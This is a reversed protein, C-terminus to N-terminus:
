PDQLGVPVANISPLSAFNTTLSGGTLPSFGHAFGPWPSLFTGTDSDSAKTLGQNFPNTGIPDRIGQAASTPYFIGYGGRIVSRDTLRFAAGVRPAWNNKDTRVLGRGVDLGSQGA